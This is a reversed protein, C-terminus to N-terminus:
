RRQSSLVKSIRSGARPKYDDWPMAPGKAKWRTDQITATTLATGTVIWKGNQKEVPVVDGYNYNHPCNWLLVAVKQEFRDFVHGASKIFWNKGRTTYPIYIREQPGTYDSIRITFPKM